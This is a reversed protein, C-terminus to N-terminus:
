ETINATLHIRSKEVLTSVLALLQNLSLSLEDIIPDPFDNVELFFHTIASVFSENDDILLNYM